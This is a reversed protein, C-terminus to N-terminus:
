KTIVVILAKYSRLSGSIDNEGKKKGKLSNSMM